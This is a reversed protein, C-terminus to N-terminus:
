RHFTLKRLEKRDDLVAMYFNDVELLGDKLFAVKYFQICAIKGKFPGTGDVSGGITIDGFANAEVGPSSQFDGQMIDNIQVDIHGWINNYSFLVYNWSSLKLGDHTHSGFVGGNKDFVQGTINTGQLTLRVGDAAGTVGDYEMITATQEVDTYLLFCWTFANDGNWDGNNPIKVFSTPTGHFDIAEIGQEDIALAINHLEVDFITIIMRTNNLLSTVFWYGDPTKQEKSDAYDNKSDGM